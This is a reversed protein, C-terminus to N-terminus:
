HLMYKKGFGFINTYNTFSFIQNINEKYIVLIGVSSYRMNKYPHSGVDEHNIFAAFNKLRKIYVVCITKKGNM